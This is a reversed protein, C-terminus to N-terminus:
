THRKMMDEAYDHIIDRLSAPKIVEIDNVCHRMVWQILQTGCVVKMSLYLRGKKVMYTASHHFNDDEVFKKSALPFSVLVDVPDDDDDFLDLDTVKKELKKITSEPVSYGKREKKVKSIRNLKIAYVAGPDNRRCCAVYIFNQYMVLALPIRSSERGDYVTTIQRKTRIADLITKLKESADEDITVTRGMYLVKSSLEKFMFMEKEKEAIPLDHIAREVLESILEGTGPYINSVCQLFVFQLILENFDPLQFRNFIAQGLRYTKHAGTGESTVMNGAQETLEQLDRQVNRRDEHPLNLADLIQTVTFNREPHNLLYVIIQVQREGKHVLSKKTM